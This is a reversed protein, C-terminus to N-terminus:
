NRNVIARGAALRTATQEHSALMMMAEGAAMTTMAEGAAMVNTERGVAMMNTEGGSVMMTTMEGFAMTTTAEHPTATPRAVELVGELDTIFKDAGDCIMSFSSLPLIGVLLAISAQNDFALVM